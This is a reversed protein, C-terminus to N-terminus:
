HIAIFSIKVDKRQAAEDSDSPLVIVNFKNTTEQVEPLEWTYKLTEIPVNYYESVRKKLIEPANDNVFLSKGTEKNKEYGSGKKILLDSFLFKPMIESIKSKEFNVKKLESAKAGKSFNMIFDDSSMNVYDGMKTYGYSTVNYGDSKLKNTVRRAMEYYYEAFFDGTDNWRLMIKIDKGYKKIISYIENLIMEEYEDPHNLFFNLRRTLGLSVNPQMVYNGKRAYCITACTGAGPCTNVYYFKNNEEDYVIGRLAPLGTNITIQNKGIDTKVMKENKGFIYSPKVTILKIFTEVDIQNNKLPINSKRIIPKDISLKERKNKDTSLRELEKNLDDVLQKPDLCTKKVDKFKTEWDIENLYERLRKSINM